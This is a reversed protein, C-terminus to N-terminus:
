ERPRGQRSHTSPPSICGQDSRSHSIGMGNSDLMHSKESTFIRGSRDDGSMAKLVASLHMVPHQVPISCPDQLVTEAVHQALIYDAEYGNMFGRREFNREINRM